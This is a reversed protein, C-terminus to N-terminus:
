LMFLEEESIVKLGLELAKDLKTGAEEGALVYNTNKSVSSNVRGGRAEIYDKAEDRSLTPLTGTIVFSLGSLSNDIQTNANNIQIQIYKNLRLIQTRSVEDHWYNYLSNASVEGLGVIAMYDDQSLTEFYEYLTKVTIIGQDASSLQGSVYRAIDKCTVEGVHRIGLAFLFKHLSVMRSNEISALLNSVSKEGYGDLDMIERGHVQLEYISAYDYIYGLSILEEVIKEGLMEIDMAKKSVFHILSESHKAPCNRNVCYLDVSKNDSNRSKGKIEQSILQSHCSPCKNPFQFKVSSEPRLDVIVNFIEPIIDGAKRIEVTDDIRVDLREIENVNHLTARKVLSGDILTPELVAVPTIAGTRGVQVVIDLVKAYAIEAPFKYAIGGRPAKSTYGLSESMEVENIKIVIGDVGYSQKNRKDIWREYHKQAEDLSKLLKYEQNVRFGLESLLKLKQSQTIIRSILNELKPPLAVDLAYAFFKLERQKVINSDLQRLTGAALNRANAYLKPEKGELKAKGKIEENINNLKDKEMWVEGTVIVKDEINIVKPIDIIQMVNNIVDEGYEGDGRTLAQVLIGGEYTLVLKLGDIKLEAIYELDEKKLVSYKPIKNLIKINRDEWNKLEEYNFVKEYSWQALEHKVKNFKDIVSGGVSNIPSQIEIISEAIDAYDHELKELDYLLKDYAEDSIEPADLVHYLHNHRWIAKRLEIIRQKINQSNNSM